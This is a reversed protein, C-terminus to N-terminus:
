EADNGETGTRLVLTLTQGDAFQVTLVPEQYSFDVKATKLVKEGDEPLFDGEGFSFLEYLYGDHWYVRTAYVDGDIEEYVVMATTDGFNEVRIAEAIDAQRVRTTIYQAATRRDFSDAERDVISRYVDAGNLLVLLICVAFVGFVILTMLGTIKSRRM